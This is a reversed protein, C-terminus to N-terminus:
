PPRKCQETTTVTRMSLDQTQTKSFTVKSYRPDIFQNFWYIMQQITRSLSPVLVQFKTCFFAWIYSKNLAVKSSRWTMRMRRSRRMRM